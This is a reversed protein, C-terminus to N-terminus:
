ISKGSEGGRLDRYKQLAALDDKTLHIKITREPERQKRSLKHAVRPVAEKKRLGLDEKFETGNAFKIVPHKTHKRGISIASQGFEINHFKVERSSPFFIEAWKQIEYEKASHKTIEKYEERLKYYAFDEKGKGLFKRYYVEGLLDWVWCFFQDIVTWETQGNKLTVQALISAIISRIKVRRGRGRIWIPRELLEDEMRRIDLSIQELHELVHPPAALWWAKFSMGDETLEQGKLVAKKEAKKRRLKNELEEYYAAHKIDSIEPFGNKIIYRFKFYPDELYFAFCTMYEFFGYGYRKLFFRNWDEPTKLSSLDLRRL